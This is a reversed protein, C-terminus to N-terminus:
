GALYIPNGKLGLTPNNKFFNSLFNIFHDGADRSNDVKKSNNNFSFGVGVPQDVCMLHGFYNWSWPNETASQSGKSGRIHV